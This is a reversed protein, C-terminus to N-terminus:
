SESPGQLGLLKTTIRAFDDLDRQSLARTIRLALADRQSAVTACARRGAPGLSLLYARKDSESRARRVWDREVLSQLARGVLTPDSDTARALEAQSCRPHAGIYRLLQAQMTGVGAATYAEAALATLAKRLSAFQEIFENPDRRRAM